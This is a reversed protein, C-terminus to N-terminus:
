ERSTRCQRGNGRKLDQTTSEERDEEVANSCRACLIVQVPRGGPFADSPAGKWEVMMLPSDGLKDPCQRNACHLDDLKAAKM